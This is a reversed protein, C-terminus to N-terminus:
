NLIRRVHLQHLLRQISSPLIGGDTFFIQPQRWKLRLLWSKLQAIQEV